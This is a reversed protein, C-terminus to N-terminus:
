SARRAPGDAARRPHGRLRAPLRLPRGPDRDRPQGRHEDRFANSSRRHRSSPTTRSPRTGTRTRSAASSWSASPCALFLLPSCSSRCCASGAWSRAGVLARRHRARARVTAATVTTPQVISSRLRRPSSTSASPQTGARPSSDKAATSSRRRRSSRVPRQRAAEGGPGGPRRGAGRPRRLPDPLLLREAVLQGEDSYLYEM